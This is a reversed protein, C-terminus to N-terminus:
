LLAQEIVEGRLFADNKRFDIAQDLLFHILAALINFCDVHDEMEKRIADNCSSFECLFDNLFCAEQVDQYIYILVDDLDARYHHLVDCLDIAADCGVLEFEWLLVELANEGDRELVNAQGRFADDFVTKM